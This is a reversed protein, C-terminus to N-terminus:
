FEDGLEELLLEFDPHGRLDDYDPDLRLRHTTLYPPKAWSFLARLREVAADNRGLFIYTLVENVYVPVTNLRDADVEAASVAIDITRIAESENGALALAVAVASRSGEVDAQIAGRRILAELNEEAAQRMLEASVKQAAVDGARRHLRAEVTNRMFSSAEMHALQERLKQWDRKIYAFEIEANLTPITPPAEDLLQRAAVTDGLGWLYVQYRRWFRWSHPTDPELALSRDCYTRAEEFSWSWSLIFCIQWAAEISLPDLMVAREAVSRAEELRLRVAHLGSLQIMADVSGPQLEILTHLKEVAEEFANANALVMAEALLTSPSNPALQRAHKLASEAQKTTVPAIGMYSADAMATALAAWADAFYPDEITALEYEEIAEKLRTREDYAKGRLYHEYALESPAKRDDIRASESSSLEVQLARAVERVIASQVRFAGDISRRLEYAEAWLVKGTKGDLLELDLKLQGSEGTLNGSLVTAVGLEDAIVTVPKESGLYHMSTTRGITTMAKINSFEALIERMLGDAFIDRHENMDSSFPLVVVSDPGLRPEDTPSCQRGAVVFLALSLIAVTFVALRPVSSATLPRPPGTKSEGELMEVPAVLRYGRKPTTEIYSGGEDCTRFATRIESMCNYISASTVVKGPWLDDLLEEADVTRGSHLALYVLVDMVQPRVTVARSGRSIKDLGQEVLCDGIRFTRDKGM